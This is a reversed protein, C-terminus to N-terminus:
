PTAPLWHKLEEGIEAPTESGWGLLTARVIGHGDIVVLRPTETVEYSIRLGSGSLVPLSLKLAERQKLVVDAKDLVTLLLVAVRGKHADSLRQAYTLLEEGVPSTPSYFVMVVPRGQWDRLRASGPATYQSVVWDPAPKGVTAVSPIEPAPDAALAAPTEGRQAAEVRRKVQLVAERYPTAAQNELHHNIKNLLAALQPGYKQPTPLLPVAAEAFARAQVV